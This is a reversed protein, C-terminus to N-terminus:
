GDNTTKQNLRSQHYDELIKCIADKGYLRVGDVQFSLLAQTGLQKRIKKYYQEITM